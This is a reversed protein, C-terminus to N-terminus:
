SQFIESTWGWPEFNVTAFKGGSFGKQQTNLNNTDFLQYRPIRNHFYNRALVHGNESFSNKEQYSLVCNCITLPM